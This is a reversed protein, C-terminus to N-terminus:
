ALTRNAIAVLVMGPVYRCIQLAVGRGMFGAGVMAVRVPQGAQQRKKLANDVLIM